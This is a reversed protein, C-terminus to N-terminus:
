MFETTMMRIHDNHFSVYQCFQLPEGSHSRSSYHTDNMVKHCIRLLPWNIMALRKLLCPWCKTDRDNTMVLSM